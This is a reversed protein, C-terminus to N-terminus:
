EGTIELIGIKEFDYANEAAAQTNFLSYILYVAAAALIIEKIFGKIVMASEKVKDWLRFPFTYPKLMVNDAATMKRYLTCYLRYIGFIDDFEDGSLKKMFMDIDASTHLLIESEFLMGFIIYVRERIENIGIENYRETEDPYYNFRVDLANTITVNRENLACYLFYYPINILIIRELLRKGIDLRENLMCEPIKTRIDPFVSYSFVAYLYGKGSFCENYDEFAINKLQLMLDDIMIDIINKAKICIVLYKREKDNMDSCLMVEYQENVEKKVIVEYSNNLSKIIM